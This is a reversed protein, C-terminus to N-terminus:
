NLHEKRLVNLYYIFLLLGSVGIGMIFWYLQEQKFNLVLILPSLCFLSPVIAKITPKLMMSITNGSVICVWGLFIVWYLTSFSSFLIVALLLDNFRAGLLIAIIRVVLLGMQFFMGLREKELISFLNSLTAAIFTIYLLPALWRAFEGAQRWNEGFVVVFVEPGTIILLLTIPMSLDVLRRHAKIVLPLLCGERFAKAANTFFVKGIADGLVSVPIALVRNALIYLGAAGSGFLTAFMLPPLQNGVSNFLGSWTSFIPLQRYRKAAQWVGLWSWDKFEKYKATSRALRLSGVGQGGTLGFLLAISGLKFGLFQVALTTLAQSFRTKTIDLFNKTRLAWYNFVNYGGSLLIGIPLLWFYKSLKPINLYQAIQDGAFGIIVGSITAMMLVVLLSLVLVNIAEQHSKPLPIALEYRLSAIVIFIALLGSYVALLGFDEPTYLRTLLPAALITLAQAGVTGVALISVGRLYTNKLLLKKIKSLM